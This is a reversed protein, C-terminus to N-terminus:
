KEKEQISHHFQSQSQFNGCNKIVRPFRFM